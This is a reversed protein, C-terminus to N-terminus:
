HKKAGSRTTISVPLKMKRRPGQRYLVLHGDHRCDVSLLRTGDIAAFYSAILRRQADPLAACARVIGLLDPEQCWYFLELLKSEETNAFLYDLMGESNENEIKSPARGRKRVM